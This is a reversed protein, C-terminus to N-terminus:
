DHYDMVGNIYAYYYVKTIGLDSDIYATSISIYKWSNATM